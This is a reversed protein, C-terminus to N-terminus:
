ISVYSAGTYGAREGLNIYMNYHHLFNVLFDLFFLLCPYHYVISGMTHLHNEFSPVEFAMARYYLGNSIKLIRTLSSNSGVLM